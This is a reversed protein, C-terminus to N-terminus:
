NQSEHSFVVKNEIEENMFLLNVKDDYLANFAFHKKQLIYEYIFFDTKPTPFSHINEFNHWELVGENCLPPEFFDIEAEYIFSMWNYKVPSTEVLTGCFRMEPVKVGAEEWVERIAAHYPDEYADVKGGVPVYTDKNPENFRKLLLFNTGKRLVCIVAVRKLGEM